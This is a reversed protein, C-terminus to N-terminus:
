ASETRDAGGAEELRVSGGSLAVPCCNRIESVWVRFSHANLGHPLCSPISGQVPGAM